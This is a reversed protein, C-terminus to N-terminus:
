DTSKLICVKASSINFVTKVAQMIREQVVSNGGGSCVVIVGRIQPEIEKVKIVQQTGDSLKVTIYNTELSSEDESTGNNNKHANNEKRDAAYVSESTSEVTLFVQANGAGDIQSIIESLRKEMQGTYEQLSYGVQIDPVTGGDDAAGGDFLNSIFILAIGAVGLIIIIKRGRDSRCIKQIGGKVTQKIQTKDM